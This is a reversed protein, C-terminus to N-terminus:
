IALHMTSANGNITDTNAAMKKTLAPWKSLSGLRNRRPWLWIFSLFFDFSIRKFNHINRLDLTNITLRLDLFINLKRGFHEAGGRAGSESCLSFYNLEIKKTTLRISDFRSREVPAVYLAVLMATRCSGRGSYVRRHVTRAGVLRDSEM